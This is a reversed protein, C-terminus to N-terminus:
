DNPSRELEEASPMIKLYQYIQAAMFAHGQAGPHISDHMLMLHSNTSDQVYERWHSYVDCLPTDTAAAVEHVADAYEPYATRALVAQEDIVGV